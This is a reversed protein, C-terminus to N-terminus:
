QLGKCLSTVGNPSMSNFHARTPPLPPSLSVTFNSTQWGESTINHLLRQYVAETFNDTVM